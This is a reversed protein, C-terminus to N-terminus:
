HRKDFKVLPGYRRMQTSVAAIRRRTGSVSQLRQFFVAKEFTRVQRCPANQTAAWPSTRSVVRYRGHFM